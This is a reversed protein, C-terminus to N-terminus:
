PLNARVYVYTVVVKQESEDFSNVLLTLTDGEIKGDAWLTSGLYFSLGGPAHPSFRGSWEYRSVGEQGSQFETSVTFTGNSDFIFTAATLRLEEDGLPLPQGDISMLEFRGTPVQVTEARFVVSGVGDVTAVLTNTSPTSGLTWRGATARGQPGSMTTSNAVSGGGTTVAFTVTVGAIPAGNEDRVLVEPDVAVSAGAFAEEDVASNAEITAPKPPAVSDSCAAMLFPLIVALQSLRRRLSSTTHM